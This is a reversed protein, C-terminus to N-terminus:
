KTVIVVDTVPAPRKMNLGLIRPRMVRTDYRVKEDVTPADYLRDTRFVDFEQPRSISGLHQTSHHLFLM